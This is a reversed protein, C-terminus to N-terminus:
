LEGDIRSPIIEKNVDFESYLISYKEPDSNDNYNLCYLYKYEPLEFHDLRKLDDLIEKVYFEFDSKSFYKFEDAYDQKFLAIFEEESYDNADKKLNIM